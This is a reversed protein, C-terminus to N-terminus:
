CYEASLSIPQRPAGSGNPRTAPKRPPHTGIWLAYNARM